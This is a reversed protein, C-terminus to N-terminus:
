GNLRVECKPIMPRQKIKSVPNVIRNNSILVALILLRILHTM